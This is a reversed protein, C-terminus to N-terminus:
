AEFQDTPHYRVNTVVIDERFLLALKLLLGTQNHLIHQWWGRPVFEPIIVTIRVKERDEKVVELYDLIPGIVSRYPSELIVLPIDEAWNEWQEILNQTQFPDTEVHLARVDSGLGRAYTLAEIVGRHLSPVLFVVTHHPPLPLKYDDIRLAKGLELYHGRINYFAFMILPLLMITIWAGHSFKAASVVLAAVGTAFAGFASRFAGVLWGRDKRTALRVVMGSQSLTFSIFVGVTYLPILAHTSSRFVVLLWGSLLGLLIIGNAFVLRDGLHTLQRPLFGDRALISSLRPFDAFATNSALILIVATVGQILYYMWNTGFTARAIQSVVTEGEPIPVVRYIHALLTIGLFISGLGVGLLTLTKAAKRSEPPIGMIFHRWLGVAILTYFAALFLYAPFAFTLGSERVGRLNVVTLIAVSGLSIALSYPALVEFASTIAATGAAISVAVTLVYDVLLAAAALLGWPTGLNEKAVTYAGGGGPYAHVTQQYSIVVTALLAVVGLTIPVSYTFAQTGAVLLILLIEETSYAVSSLADSAFVPFALIPALRQHILTRTALPIGFFLRRLFRIM